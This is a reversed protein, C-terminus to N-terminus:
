GDLSGVIVNTFRETETLPSLPVFRSLRPEIDVVWFRPAETTQAPYGYLCEESGLDYLRPLVALPKQRYYGTYLRHAFAQEIATLNESDIAAPRIIQVTAALIYGHPHRYDTAAQVAAQDAVHERPYLGWQHPVVPSSTADELRAFERDTRRLHRRLGYTWPVGDLEVSRVFHTHPEAAAARMEAKSHLLPTDPSIKPLELGFHRVINM